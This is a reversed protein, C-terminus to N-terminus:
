QDSQALQDARRRAEEIRGMYGARLAEIERDREVVARNARRVRLSELAYPFARNLAGLSSFLGGAAM